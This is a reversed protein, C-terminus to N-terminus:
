DDKRELRISPHIAYSAPPNYTIEWEPITDDLERILDQIASHSFQKPIIIRKVETM